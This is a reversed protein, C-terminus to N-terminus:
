TAFRSLGERRTDDELSERGRRSAVDRKKDMSYIPTDEEPDSGHRRPNGRKPKLKKSASTTPM